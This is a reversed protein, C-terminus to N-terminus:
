GKIWYSCGERDGEYWYCFSPVERNEEPKCEEYVWEEHPLTERNEHKYLRARESCIRQAILELAKACGLMECVLEWNSVQYSDILRYINRLENKDKIDMGKLM